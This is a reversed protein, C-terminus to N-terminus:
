ISPSDVAGNAKLWYTAAPSPAIQTEFMLAPLTV